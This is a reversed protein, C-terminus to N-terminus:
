MVSSASETIHRHLKYRRSSFAQVQFQADRAGLGTRYAEMWRKMQHEWKWISDVGVSALAKPMNDQLTTFSYDCNERLYWKSAGWFYEIFNLECHFKPLFICMHGASEVVEQILSQQAKFDPQNDLIQKACCNDSTCTDKCRMHLGDKWLGQEMLVHKIGKPMDPFEPHNKPFIMQHSVKVGHCMFWGDRLCAQKGGPNMNMRSTLLADKAYASHGQSNDVMLLM